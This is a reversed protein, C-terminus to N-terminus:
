KVNELQSVSLAKGIDRQRKDVIFCMREDLSDEVVLRYASVPVEKLVDWIREEAQDMESPIWSIEGFVVTDAASLPIGVGAAVLNGIFVRCTPDDRFRDIQEQRKKMTMGGILFAADPFMERLKFMAQRHYAFVVVKSETQLVEEVFAGVMPMKAIALEKRITSMETSDGLDDSPDERNLGDLHAYDKILTDVAADDLKANLMQEFRELNARVFSKEKEVLKVLGSKPLVITQRNPPIEKVVQNKERRVMIRSRLLFQLQELNSAGTTVMRGALDRSANCYNHVYDWWSKGLHSPDISRLLPWLDIPRTYIPTGTLFLRRKARIPPAIGRDKNGLINMSRQSTETGLYHAEDVALVDWDVTRIYDIHRSLIEYNCILVPSKPNSNGECVDVPFENAHLCKSAYERAWHIKVGAPPIILARKMEPTANMVGVTQVTKGLRPADANLSDARNLMFAIGAKQYPRYVLGEPAPINIHADVAHSAAIAHGRQKVFAEVREKAAGVCFDRHDAALRINSTIWADYLKSWHWGAAKMGLPDPCDAARYVAREYSVIM